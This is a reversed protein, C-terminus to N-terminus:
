NYGYNSKLRNNSLYYIKPAQNLIPFVKAWKAYWSQGRYNDTTLEKYSGQVAMMADTLVKTAPIPSRLINYFTKPNNYFFIGEQARFMANYALMPAQAALGGNDENKNWNIAAKLGVLMGLISMTIGIEALNRRMNEIDVNSLQEGDVEFAHSSYSIQKALVKISNFLGLEGYTTWRGKIRRGLRRNFYDDSFRNYIGEPVWNRFQMFMKGLVSTKINMPSSPDYNGYLLKNLEIGNNKFETLDNTDGPKLIDNWSKAFKDTVLSKDIKGDKGFLDYLRTNKGSIVDDGDIMLHRMKAIYSMAQILYVSQTQFAYIDLDTVLKFKDSSNTTDYRADIADFIVNHRHLINYVKNDEKDTLRTTFVKNIAWFADKNGFEIRGNAHTLLAIIGFLSLNIGSTVNLAMAKLQTVYIFQNAIKTISLNKGGLHKYKTELLEMKDDYIDKTINNNDLLEDLKRAENEILLARRKLKHQETANLLTINKDKSNSLMELKKTYEDLSIEGNQLKESLIDKEIDKMSNPNFLKKNSYTHHLGIDYLTHEITNKVVSNIHLHGNEVTVVKGSNSDDVMDAGSKSTIVEGADEIIRQLLLVKDEINSKFQYNVAMVSFKKLNEKLDHSYMYDNYPHNIYKIPLKNIIDGKYNRQVGVEKSTRLKATERSAIGNIFKDNIIAIKSRADDSMTDYISKLVGPLFNSNLKGNIYKPLMLILKQLIENHRNYLEKLKPNDMITEFDKDYYGTDKYEGNILIHKRPATVLYDFGNFSKNKSPTGTYIKDLIDVPNNNNIWNNFEIEKENDTLENKDEYIFQKQADKDNIYQQYKSKADEILETATNEGFEDNLYKRYDSPDKFSYGPLNRSGIDGTEGLAVLDILMSKKYHEKVLKYKKDILQEKSLTGQEYKINLTQLKNNYDTVTNDWTSSFKDIMSLTTEGNIDKKYFIDFNKGIIDKLSKDKEVDSFIKNIEDEYDLITGTPSNNSDSLKMALTQVLPEHIKHIDLFNAVFSGIDKLKVVNDIGIKKEFGVDNIENIAYQQRLALLRNDLKIARTNLTEYIKYEYSNNKDILQEDSLYMDTTNKSWMSVLASGTRIDLASLNKKDLIKDVLDFQKNAIDKVKELSHNEIIEEKFKQIENIKDAIALQNANYENTQAIKEEDNISTDVSKSRFYKSKYMDLISNYRKIIKQTIDDLVVSDNDDNTYTSGDDNAISNRIKGNISKLKDSDITIIDNNIQIVDKGLQQQFRIFDDTNRGTLKNNKDIIDRTRLGSLISEETYKNYNGIPNAGKIYNDNLKNTNISETLNFNSKDSNTNINKVVKNITKDSNVKMDDFTDTKDLENTLGLVENLSYNLVSNDKVHFGFSKFINSFLKHILGTAKQFINVNDTYKIDNLVKQFKDNSLVESTFEHINSLGYYKALESDISGKSIDTKHLNTLIETFKKPNDQILKDITFKYLKDINSIIGNVESNNAKRNNLYNDIATESITHSTEHLIRNEFFLVNNENYINGNMRILGDKYIGAINTPLSRDIGINININNNSLYKNFVDAISKYYDNSDINKLATILKGDTTYKDFITQNNTINKEKTKNLIIDINNKESTIQHKIKYNLDIKNADIMSNIKSINLDYEIMFKASNNANGATGITQYIYNNDKDKGMREYLMIKDISSNSVKNLDYLKSDLIHYLPNNRNNTLYKPTEIEGDSPIAFEYIIGNGDTSFEKNDLQYFNVTKARFPEHQLLQRIYSNPNINITNKTVDNNMSIDQLHKTVGIKKLYNIDIFRSFSIPNFIPAFLYNYEVIDKGIKSTVLDSSNILSNLHNINDIDNIGVGKTNDYAILKLISDGNKITKLKLKDLLPNDHTKLYTQIRDWLSTNGNILNYRSDNISISTNDNTAETIGSKSSLIAVRFKDIINKINRDNLQIGIDKQLKSFITRTFPSNIDLLKNFSNNALITSEKIAVGLETNYDIYKRNNKEYVTGLLDAGGDIRDNNLVDNRIKGLLDMSEYANKGAGNRISFMIASMMKSDYVGITFLKSFLSISSNDIEKKTDDNKIENKIRKLLIDASLIYHKNNSEDYDINLKSKAGILIKSVDYIDPNDNKFERINDMYKKVAPNNILRLIFNINMSKSDNSTLRLASIITSINDTNINLYGAKPNAGNDVFADLLTQINDSKSREIHEGTEPNIYLSKGTKGLNNLVIDKGDDGKVIINENEKNSNLIHLNFPETHSNYINALAGIGILDRGSQQIAYSDRQYEWSAIDPITKTTIRSIEDDLDNNTLPELARKVVDPNSYISTSLDIYDNKLINEDSFLKNLKNLKNYIKYKDIDSNANELQKTTENYKDTVGGKKDNALYGLQEKLGNVQNKLQIYKDKDNYNKVELLKNEIKTKNENSLWNFSGNDDIYYQKLYSYMKDIDFDSGMSETIGDAVVVTNKLETPLFGATEYLVTSSHKAKPIRTYIGELFEKPLKSYDIVKRGDDLIKTYNNIDLLKGNNDKFNWSTLVQMRRVKNNKDLGYGDLTDHINHNEVFITGDNLQKKQIDSLKSYDSTLKYNLDPVQVDSTGPMRIKIVDSNLLSYMLSQIRDLSGNFLLPIEFKTNDNALSLQQTDTISWNRNPEIAANYLLKQLKSLDDFSYDGNIDKILAFKDIVKNRGIEHLKNILKEKELELNRGTYDDKGHYSFDKVDRIDNFELSNLQTIFAINNHLVNKQVLGFSNRDITQIQNDEFKIDNIFDGDSKFIIVPTISGLKDTSSFALRDINKNEMAVRLKDIDLGATMEPYLGLAGSKRFHVMSVDENPYFQSDYLIPKISNLIAKKENGTLEFYNNINYKDSQALKIKDLINNGIKHDILNYATRFIIDEKATTVESGDTTELKDYGNINLRKNYEEIHKSPIIRDNATISNFSINNEWDGTIHPSLGGKLRKQLNRYTADYDIKNNDLKTAIAPDFLIMYSEANAIRSQIAFHAIMNKIKNFQLDQKNKYYIHKDTIDIPNYESSKIIDSDIADNNLKNRKNILAADKINDKYKTFDVTKTDIFDQITNKIDNENYLKIVKKLNIVSEETNQLKGDIYVDKIEDKSLYKSLNHENLYNFLIFSSAGDNYEKFRTGNGKNFNLIRNVEGQIQTYLLDVTNDSLKINSDKDFYLSIDQKLAHIIPVVANEGFTLTFFRTDNNSGTIFANLATINQNRYDMKSRDIGTLGKSLADFYTVKFRDKINPNINIDNLWLSHSSFSTNLLKSLISSNPNKIDNIRNALYTYDQPEFILNGNSNMASNDYIKTQYKDDLTALNYLFRKGFGTDFINNNTLLLHFLSNKNDIDFTRFLQSEGILSPNKIFDEVTNKNVNIGLRNLISQTLDKFKPIDFKDNSVIKDDEVISSYANRLKDQLNLLSKTPISKNDKLDFLESANYQEKWDNYLGLKGSTSNNYIFKYNQGHERILKELQHRYKAMTNVFETKVESMEDGQLKEAIVSLIPNDSISKTNLTNILEKFTTGGDMLSSQINNFLKDIDAPITLGLINKKIFTKGDKIYIDPIGYLFAKFKPSSTNKINVKFKSIDNYKMVEYLSNEADDINDENKLEKIGDSTLEIGIKQKLQSITHQKIKDFNNIVDNYSKIRNSLIDMNMVSFRGLIEKDSNTLEIHNKIKTYIDSLDSKISKLKNLTNNFYTKSSIDEEKNFIVKNKYYDLIPLIISNVIDVQNQFSGLEPIIYNLGANIENNVNETIDSNIANISLYSDKNKIDEFIDSTKNNTDFLGSEIEPKINEFVNNFKDDTNKIPKDNIEVDKIDERYKDIHFFVNPQAFYIYNGKKDKITGNFVTLVKDGVFKNYNDFKNITKINFLEDTDKGGIQGQKHLIPEIIKINPKNLNYTKISFPIFAQKDIIASNFKTDFEDKDISSIGGTNNTKTFIPEGNDIKASYITQNSVDGIKFEGDDTVNFLYEHKGINLDPAKLFLTNLDFKHLSLYQSVFSKIYKPNDRDFLIKNTDSHFKDNLKSYDYHSYNADVYNRLTFSMDSNSNVRPTQLPLIDTKDINNKNIIGVTLGQIAYNPNLDFPLNENKGIVVNGNIITGLLSIGPLLDNVKGAKIRPTGDNKYLVEGNDKDININLIPHGNSKDSILGTESNGKNLESILHNRLKINRDYQLKTNDIVGDKTNIYEAVNNAKLVGNDDHLAIWDPNHVYFIHKWTNDEPNHYEVSIPIYNNFDKSHEKKLSKYTETGDDSKYDKDIVFRIKDGKKISHAIFLAEESKVDNSTTHRSVENILSNRKFIKLSSIYDQFLYAGANAGNIIKSDIRDFKGSVTRKINGKINSTDESNLSNYLRSYKDAVNNIDGSNIDKSAASIRDGNDYIPEKSKAQDVVAEENSTIDPRTNMLDKKSEINTGIPIFSSSLNNPQKITIDNDVENNSKQEDKIDIPENSQSGTKNTTKDISKDSKSKFEHIAAEAANKTKTAVNKITNFTSSKNEDTKIKNTLENMRKNVITKFIDSESDYNDQTNIYEKLDDVTNFTNVKTNIDNALQQYNKNEEKANTEVKERESNHQELNTYISKASERSSQAAIKKSILELWNKDYDSLNFSKVNQKTKSNFETTFIYKDINEDTKSIEINTPNDGLEKSKYSNLISINSKDLNINENQLYDIKDTLQQKTLGTYIDRYNNPKDKLTEIIDKYQNSLNNNIAQQLLGQKYKHLPHNLEDKNVSHTLNNLQRNYHGILRRSEDAIYRNIVIDNAANYQKSYLSHYKNYSGELKTAIDKYEEVKGPYDESLGLKTSEDKSLNSLRDLTEHVNQMTGKQANDMITNFFQEKNIKDFADADGIEKVNEKIRELAMYRAPKTNMYTFGHLMLANLVGIAGASIGQKSTLEKLFRDGITSGNNKILGTKIGIDRNAEDNIFKGTVGMAYLSLSSQAVEKLTQNGLLSEYSSTAKLGKFLNGIGLSYFLININSRDLVKEAEVSASRKAMNNIELANKKPYLESYHQTFEKMGINFTQAAASIGTSHSLATSSLLTSGLKNLKGSATFDSIAKITDGLTNDAEGAVEIGKAALRGLKTADVLDGLSSLALGAGKDLAGAPLLFGLMSIMGPGNKYWWDASLVPTPHKENIYIPFENNVKKNFQEVGNLFFNTYKSDERITKNFWMPIDLIAGFPKIATTGAEIVGRAIVNGIKQFTSQNNAKYSNLAEGPLRLSEASPVFGQAYKDGDPNIITSSGLGYIQPEHQPINNYGKETNVLGTNNEPIIPVFTSTSKINTNPM